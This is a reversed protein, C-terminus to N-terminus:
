SRVEPATLRGRKLPHPFEFPRFREPMLKIHPDDPHIVEGQRYPVVTGDVDTVFPEVVVYLAVPKEPAPTAEKAM